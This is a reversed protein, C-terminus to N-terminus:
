KVQLWRATSTVRAHHGCQLLLLLVVQSVGTTAVHMSVFKSTCDGTADGTIVNLCCGIKDLSVITRTINDTLGGFKREDQCDHLRNQGFRCGLSM